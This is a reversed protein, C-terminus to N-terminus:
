CPAASPVQYRAPQHARVPIVHRETEARHEKAKGVGVRPAPATPKAQTSPDVDDMVCYNWPQYEM